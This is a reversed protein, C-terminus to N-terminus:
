IFTSWNFLLYLHSVSWSSYVTNSAPLHRSPAAHASVLKQVKRCLLIVYHWFDSETFRHMNVQPLIMGFKMWIRNSIVRGWAKNFLDGWCCCSSFCGSLYCYPILQQALFQPYYLERVQQTQTLLLLHISLCSDIHTVATPTTCLPRHETGNSLIFKQKKKEEKYNYNNIM